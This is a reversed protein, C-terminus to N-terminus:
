SAAREVSDFHDNATIMSDTAITSTGRPRPASLVLDGLVTSTPQSGQTGRRRGVHGDTGLSPLAVMIM